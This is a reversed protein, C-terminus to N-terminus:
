DKILLDTFKLVEHCVLIMKFLQTHILKELFARSRAVKKKTLWFMVCYVVVNRSCCM